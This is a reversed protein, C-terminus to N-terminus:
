FHYAISARVSDATLATHNHYVHGIPPDSISTQDGTETGFDYHAYELKLSVNRSIMREVGGGVTWGTFTDTAHSIYGDATTAQSAEGTYLALGGSVFIQTAPDVLFGLRGTVTGLFGGDLGINQHNGSQSSPTAISGALDAYDFDAAVGVVVRDLQVNYGLSGGGVFGGVNNNFPGVFKPDSGWDAKDDTTTADGWIYGLNAGITPGSWKYDQAVVPSAALLAAASISLAILKM